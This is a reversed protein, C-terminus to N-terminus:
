QHWVLMPITGTSNANLSGLAKGIVTGPAPSRGAAQAFGAKSSAVLLDGVAVGILNGFGSSTAHVPVVGSIAMEQYTLQPAARVSGANVALGSPACLVGAVLTGDDSTALRFEGPHALDIAVVDGPGDSPDSTQVYESVAPAMSQYGGATSISGSNDVRMVMGKTTSTGALLDGAGSAQIATGGAGAEGLVGVGQAAPANGRVGIGGGKTNTGYVGSGGPYYYQLEGSTKFGGEFSEGYVGAGIHSAQANPNDPGFNVGTVGPMDNSETWGDVGAGQPSFGFVGASPSLVGPAGMALEGVNGTGTSTAIIIPGGTGTLNLPPKIKSSTITQDLVSASNLAYPVSNLALRPTMEADAGIKVGLWYPADFAVTTPIPTTDGLLTSFRGQTGAVSVPKTESWLANGGTAADYLTFTVSYSGAPLPTGASGALVGGFAVTRPVAAGAFSPLAIAAVAAAALCTVIRM